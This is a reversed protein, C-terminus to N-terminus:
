ARLLHTMTNRLTTTMTTTVNAPTKDALVVLVALLNGDYTEVTITGQGSESFAAQGLGSLDHVTGNSTADSRAGDYITKFNGPPVDTNVSVSLIAVSFLGGQGLSMQCQLDVEHPQTASKPTLQGLGPFAARMASLDAATCLNQVGMYKANNAVPPPPPLPANTGPQSGAPPQGGAAVNSGNGGGSAGPKTTTGPAPTPGTGPGGSQHPFTQFNPDQPGPPPAGTPTDYTPDSCATLAIALAAVSLVRLWRSATNRHVLV